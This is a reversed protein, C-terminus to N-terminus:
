QMAGRIELSRDIADIIVGDFIENKLMM